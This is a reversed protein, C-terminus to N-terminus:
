SFRTHLMPVTIGCRSSLFTFNRFGVAKQVHSYFILSDAFNVVVRRTHGEVATVLLSSTYLIQITANCSAMM